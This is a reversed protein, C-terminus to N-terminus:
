KYALCGATVVKWHDDLVVVISITHENVGRFTVVMLCTIRFHRSAVTSHIHCPWSKFFPVTHPLLICCRARDFHRYVVVSLHKVDVLISSLVVAAIIDTPMLLTCNRNSSDFVSHLHALLKLQCPLRMMLLPVVRSLTETIADHTLLSSALRRKYAVVCSVRLRISCHSISLTLQYLLM